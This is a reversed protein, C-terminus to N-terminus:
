TRACRGKLVLADVREPDGAVYAEAAASRQEFFREFDPNSM